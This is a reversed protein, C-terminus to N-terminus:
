MRLPVAHAADDALRHHGSGGTLMVNDPPFRRSLAADRPCPPSAALAAYRQSASLAGAQGIKRALVAQQDPIIRPCRGHTCRRMCRPWGTRMVGCRGRRRTLAALMSQGDVQAYVIGTRDDVQVVEGAPSLYAAHRM